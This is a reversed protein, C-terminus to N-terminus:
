HSRSVEVVLTLGVSKVARAYAEIRLFYRASNLEVRIKKNKNFWVANENTKYTFPFFFPPKFINVLIYESM